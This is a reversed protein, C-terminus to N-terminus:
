RREVLFPSPVEHLDNVLQGFFRADTNAVRAGFCTVLELLEVLYGFVVDLVGLLVQLLKVVLVNRLDVIQQLPLFCFYHFDSSTDSSVRRTRNASTPAGTVTAITYKPPQIRAVASPARAPTPAHSSKRIARDPPAVGIATMPITRAARIGM